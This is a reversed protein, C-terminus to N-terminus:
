ARKQEAHRVYAKLAANIRTQYGAGERKFFAVVDADLKIHIGIKPSPLELSAAAWDWDREEPDEAAQRRFDADTLKDLAAVDSRSEGGRIKAKAEEVSMSVINARKTM